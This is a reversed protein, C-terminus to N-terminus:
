KNSASTTDCQDPCPIVFDYFNKESSAIGGQPGPNTDHFILDATHNNGTSSYAALSAYVYESTSSNLVDQLDARNVKYYRAVMVQEEGGEHAPLYLPTSGYIQNYKYVRSYAVSMTLQEGVNAGTGANCDVPCPQGGGYFTDEGQNNLYGDHYPRQSHFILDSLYARGSATGPASYDRETIGLSAYFYDNTLHENLLNQFSTRNITYFRPLMVNGIPSEQGIYRYVDVGGFITNYKGIAHMADDPSLKVPDDQAADSVGEILEDAADNVADKAKQKTADCSFITISVALIAIAWLTNIKMDFMTKLETLFSNIIAIYISFKRFRFNVIDSRM